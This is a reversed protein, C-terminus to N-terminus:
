CVVSLIGKVNKQLNKFVIENNKVLGKLKQENLFLRYLEDQEKLVVGNGYNSVQDSINGSLQNTIIYTGAAAGEFYTYSYTEPVLSWLFSIDIKNEIIKNTMALEGDDKFSVEVYTVGEIIEDNSGLCYFEYKDQYKKVVEKFVGWGKNKHKYGLYAIKLKAEGNIIKKERTLSFTQHTIVRVNRNSLKFSEIIIRKTHESPVIINFNFNDFLYKHYSFIKDKREKHSCTACPKWDLEHGNCFFDDNYMLNINSCISSYDHIYYYLNSKTGLKKIIKDLINLELTALSHVLISKIHDRFFCVLEEFDYIGIETGNKVITFFLGQYNKINYRRWFLHYTLYGKNEILETQEGIFKSLGNLNIAYNNRSISVIVNNEDETKIISSQKINNNILLDMKILDFGSITYFDGFEKILELIEEYFSSFVVILVDNPNESKLEDPGYILKQNLIEGKKKKDNDIFYDLELSFKNSFEKYYGSTGWGIVKKYNNELYEQIENM